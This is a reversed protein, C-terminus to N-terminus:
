VIGAPTEGREVHWLASRVNESPALRRRVSDWGGLSTLAQQAYRGAPVHAPDGVALRRRPGLLGALDFGPKIAIEAQHAKPVILVLQNSVVDRRSEKNILNCEAAWNMWWVEDASAFINANAGQALQRALTSSAAFSPSPQSSRTRGWGSRDGDHGGKSQRRRFCDDRASARDSRAGAFRVAIPVFDRMASLMKPALVGHLRAMPAERGAVSTQCEKLFLYRFLKWERGDLRLVHTESAELGAILRLTMSKGSGSPGLIALRTASTEWSVDLEFGELRHHFAFYPHRAAKIPPASSRSIQGAPIAAADRLPRWKRREPAGVFQSAIMITVAALLTPVLVPIMAPLGEGGFAVFTFVPLSYPHYAVLVTAGFEGFARLWALLLGALTARWALPLSVRLFVAWPRHGLTAAVDELEPDIASFASRAAIILFPAAVFAEALTIGAFSDTLAGNTLRGLPSSYGLLFLLLVGSALPPLALSLQVVFGLLAMGRGPRRALLYGLPIGCIAICAAALSASAISIASASALGAIDASAWDAFASRRLVPSL